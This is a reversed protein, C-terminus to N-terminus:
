RWVFFILLLSAGYLALDALLPLDTLLSKEPAGGQEHRYVLDLYRFVGFIVFPITYELHANGFKNITEASLTYLAYCVIVAGSVTAILQDVLKREYVMLGPRHTESTDGLLLREHRRKCLALFLALLFACLLLWPSIVVAIAVAGALARLVFGTAIVFLDVLPVRKLWFTYVFQLAAYGAVIQFLPLNVSRALALGAALLGAAVGIALPASVQGSAIPRLRKAPHRRDREVDSLDNIVYAGSSALCFAALALLAAPVVDTMRISQTRDGAAFLLAALVVANKTWQNVRLLRATVSLAQLFSAAM